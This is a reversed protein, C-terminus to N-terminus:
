NLLMRKKAFCIELMEQLSVAIAVTLVLAIVVNMWMQPSHIDFTGSPLFKIIIPHHVLFISYSYKETRVLTNSLWRLPRYQSRRNCWNLWSYLMVSAAIGSLLPSIIRGPVTLAILTSFIYVLTAVVGIWSRYLFAMVQDSQKFWLFALGMGMCFEATRVPFITGPYWFTTNYGLKLSLGLGIARVAASAMAALLLTRKVGFQHFKRWLWPYILYLQLILPVFWWAPSFFYLHRPLVRLGLLSIFSRVEYPSIGWGILLWTAMFILHCGVWLPLLKKLRKRFFPGLAFRIPTGRCLLGWTLGFGSLILFVAVGDDGLWGLYYIPSLLRDLGDLPLAFQEIALAQWSLGYAFTSLPSMIIQEAVHNLVIWFLAITKMQALWKLQEVDPSPPQPLRFQSQQYALIAESLINVGQLEVM